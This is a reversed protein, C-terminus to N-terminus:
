LERASVDDVMSTSVIVFQDRASNVVFQHEADDPLFVSTPDEIFWGADGRVNITFPVFPTNHLCARLSAVIAQERSVTPVELSLWREIQPSWFDPKQLVRGLYSKLSDVDDHQSVRLASTMGWDRTTLSEVLVSVGTDLAIVLVDRLSGRIEAHEVCKYFAFGAIPRIMMDFDMFSEGGNDTSLPSAEPAHSTHRYHHAALSSYWRGGPRSLRSHIILRECADASLELRATLTGYTPSLWSKAWV